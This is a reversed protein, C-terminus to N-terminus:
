RWTAPRRATFPSSFIWRKCRSTRRAQWRRSRSRRRLIATRSKRRWGARARRRARHRASIRLINHLGPGSLVREYSVHEFRGMLYRLLEMELDNRRRSIPLTRRRLSVAPLWRGSRGASGSRGIGHRGFDFRSKGHPQADRREAGRLRVGGAARHRARQRVSRQDSRRSGSSLEQPWISALGGGLASQHNRRPWGGGRGAIRLLRSARESQAQRSIEARNGGPGSFQPSPFVEIDVPKLRDPTGEFFALRTNTGGIDGALIM